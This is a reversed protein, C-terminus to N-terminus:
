HFLLSIDYRIFSIFAGNLALLVLFGFLSFDIVTEGFSAKIDSIVSEPDAKTSM